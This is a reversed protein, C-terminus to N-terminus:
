ERVGYKAALPQAAYNLSNQFRNRFFPVTVERYAYYFGVTWLGVTVPHVRRSVWYTSGLWAGLVGAKNALLSM